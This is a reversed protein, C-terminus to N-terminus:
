GNWGDVHDWRKALHAGLERLTWLLPVAYDRAAEVVDDKSNSDILAVRLRRAQRPITSALDRSRKRWHALRRQEERIIFDRRYAISEPFTEEALDLGEVFSVGPSEERLRREQARHADMRAFDADTM